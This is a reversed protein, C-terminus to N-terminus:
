FSILGLVRSENNFACSAPTLTTNADPLGIEAICRKLYAAPTEPKPEPPPLPTPTEQGGAARCRAQLNTDPVTVSTTVQANAAVPTAADTEEHAIEEAVPKQQQKGWSFVM